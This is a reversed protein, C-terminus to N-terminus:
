VSFPDPESVIASAAFDDVYVVVAPSPLLSAFAPQGPAPPLRSVSAALTTNSSNSVLRPNRERGRFPPAGCGRCGAAAMVLLLFSWIGQPVPAIRTM